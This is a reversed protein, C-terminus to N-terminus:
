IAVLQFVPAKYKARSCFFEIKVNNFSDLLDITFPKDNFLARFLTVNFVGM